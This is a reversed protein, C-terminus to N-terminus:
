GDPDLSILIKDTPRLSEVETEFGEKDKDAGPM